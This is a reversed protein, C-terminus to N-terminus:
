PKVLGIEMAIDSVSKGVRQKPKQGIFHHERLERRSDRRGGEEIEASFRGGRIRGNIPV